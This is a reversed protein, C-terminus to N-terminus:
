SLAQEPIYTALGKKYFNATYKIAAAFDMTAIKELYENYKKMVKDSLHSTNINENVVDLPTKKSRTSRAQEKLKAVLDVEKMETGISGDIRSIAEFSM